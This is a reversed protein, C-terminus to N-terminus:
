WDIAVPTGNFMAVNHLHDDWWIIKNDSFYKGAQERAPDSVDALPQILINDFAMGMGRNKFEEEEAPISITLTPIACTPASSSIFSRKVVVGMEENVMIFPTSCSCSKMESKNKRIFGFRTLESIKGGVARVLKEAKELAENM